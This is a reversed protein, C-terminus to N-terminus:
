SKPELVSSVRVGMQALSNSASSYLSSLVTMNKNLDSIRTYTDAMFSESACTTGCPNKLTITHASPMTSLELCDEAMIQFNGKVDPRIGNITVIPIGYKETIINLLDDDTIVAEEPTIVSITITNTTADYSIDVNDGAELTIDGTVVTDGIRIGNLTDPMVIINAPFVRGQKESIEWVGPYKIIDACTGVVLTGNIPITSTPRIRFTREEITNGVNLTTPIPDSEAVPVFGDPTPCSIRIFVYDPYVLLESISTNFRYSDDGPNDMMGICLKLDALFSSPISIGSDGTVDDTDTLPYRKDLNSDVFEAYINSTDPM